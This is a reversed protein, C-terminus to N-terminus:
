LTDMLPCIVRLPPLSFSATTLASVSQSLCDVNLNFNAVLELFGTCEEEIRFEREREPGSLVPTSKLNIRLLRLVNSALTIHELASNTISRRVRHQLLHCVERCKRVLCRRQTSDFLLLRPRSLTDTPGNFGMLWLMARIASAAETGKRQISQGTSLRVLMTTVADTCELTNRVYGVVFSTLYVAGIDAAAFSLTEKDTSQVRAAPLCRAVHLTHQLVRQVLSLEQTANLITLRKFELERAAVTMTQVQGAVKVRLDGGQAREQADQKYEVSTSGVLRTIADSPVDQKWIISVPTRGRLRLGPRRWGALRAQALFATSFCSKCEVRAHTTLDLLPHPLFRLVKGTRVMGRPVLMLRQPSSLDKCQLIGDREKGYTVASAAAQHVEPLVCVVNNSVVNRFRGVMQLMERPSAGTGVTPGMGHMYVTAVSTQINIGTTIQDTLAVIDVREPDSDMVLLKDMGNCPGSQSDLMVARYRGFEGSALVDQMKLPSRFALGIKTGATLDELAMRLWEVESVVVVQRHLAVYTYRHFRIHKTPLQHSVYDWVATDVEIDADMLISRCGRVLGDVIDCNLLLRDRNTTTCQAQALVSRVDEIIVLDFTDFANGVSLLRHLSEYAIILKNLGCLSGTPHDLYMEFGSVGDVWVVDAYTWRAIYAQQQNATVILVRQLCPNRELYNRMQHTKGLGMSAGILLMQQEPQFQYGQVFQNDHQETIERPIATLPPSLPQNLSEVFWQKTKTHLDSNQVVSHVEKRNLLHMNSRLLTFRNNNDM